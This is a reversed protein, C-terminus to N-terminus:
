LEVLGFAGKLGAGSEDGAGKLELVVIERLDMPRPVERFCQHDQHSLNDPTTFEMRECCM